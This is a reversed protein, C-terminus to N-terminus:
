GQGSVHDLYELRNRRQDFRIYPEARLRRIRDRPCRWGEGQGNRLDIFDHGILKGNKIKVYVVM